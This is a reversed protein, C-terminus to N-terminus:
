EEESADEGGFEGGGTPVSDATGEKKQTGEEKDPSVADESVTGAPASQIDEPNNGRGIVYIVSLVVILFFTALRVTMARNLGFLGFAANIEELEADNYRRLRRAAEIRLEEESFLGNYQGGDDSLSGAKLAAGTEARAAYEKELSSRIEKELGARIEEELGPRLEEELGTRIKEELGPRLEEELGARIEEELGPRLEETLRARLEEVAAASVYMKGAAATDAAHDEKLGYEAATKEGPATKKVAEEAKATRDTPEAAKVPAAKEAIEEFRATRDAPEAAKAPAAKEALEEFRVTRDAPEATRAPAAKEALEEFRATRDAPEEAKVPAAKKVAAKTEVAKAAFETPEAAAPVNVPATKRATGAAETGFEAAAFDAAFDEGFDKERGPATDYTDAKGYGTSGPQRETWEESMDLSAYYRAANAMHKRMQREDAAEERAHTYETMSRRIGDFMSPKKPDRRVAPSTNRDSYVPREQRAAAAKRKNSAAAKKRKAASAQRRKLAAEQRKRAAEAEKREEATLPTRVTRSQSDPAAKKGSGSNDSSQDATKSSAPRGTDERSEPSTRSKEPTRDEPEQITEGRAMRIISELDPNGEADEFYVPDMIQEDDTIQQRSEAGRSHRDTRDTKEGAPIGAAPRIRVPKGCSSCVRADDALFAGCKACYM